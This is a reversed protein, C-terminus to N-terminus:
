QTTFAPINRRTLPTVQRLRKRTASRAPAARYSIPDCIGTRLPLYLYMYYMRVDVGVALLNVGHNREQHTQKEMSFPTTVPQPGRVSSPRRMNPRAGPTLPCEGGSGHCGDPSCYIGAEQGIFQRQIEPGALDASDPPSCSSSTGRSLQRKPTYSTYIQTKSALGNEALPAEQASPGPLWASFISGRRLRRESRRIQSCAHKWSHGHLLHQCGQQLVAKSRATGCGHDCSPILLSSTCSATRRM